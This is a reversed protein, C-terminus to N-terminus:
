LGSVFLQSTLVNRKIDSPIRDAKGVATAGSLFGKNPNHGLGDIREVAENIRKPLMAGEGMLFKRVVVSESGLM